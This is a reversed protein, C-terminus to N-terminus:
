NQIVLQKLALIHAIGLYFHAWQAVVPAIVPVQVLGAHVRADGVQEVVWGCYEERDEHGEPTLICLEGM